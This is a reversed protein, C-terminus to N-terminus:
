PLTDKRFLLLMGTRYRSIGTLSKYQVSFYYYGMDCDVISDKTGLWGVTKDINLFILRHASDYVRATFQTPDILNLPDGVKWSDNVGDGDPSFQTPIIINNDDTIPDKDKSCAYIVSVIAAIILAIKFKKM